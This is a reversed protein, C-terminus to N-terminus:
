SKRSPTNTERKRIFPDARGRLMFCAGSVLDKVFYIMLVFKAKPQPSLGTLPEGLGGEEAWLQEMGTGTETFTLDGPSRFTWDEDGDFHVNGARQPDGPFFAHAVMGGPGDFPYGDHHDFRFFEVSIDASHSGVEHFNLPTVETWVKLAYYMLTRM